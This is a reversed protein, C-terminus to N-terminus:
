GARGAAPAVPEPSLAIGPSSAVPPQLPLNTRKSKHKADEDYLRTEVDDDDWGADTPRLRGKGARPAGAHPPQGVPVPQSRAGPPPSRPAAVPQTPPRRGGARNGTSVRSVAPALEPVADSLTPAAADTPEDDGLAPVPLGPAPAPMPGL